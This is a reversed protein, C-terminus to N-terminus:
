IPNISALTGHFILGFDPLTELVTKRHEIAGPSFNMQDLTAYFQRWHRLWLEWVRIPFVKSSVDSIMRWLFGFLSPSPGQHPFFVLFAERVGSTLFLLPFYPKWAWLAICDVDKMARFYQVEQSPTSFCLFYESLIKCRSVLWMPFNYSYM